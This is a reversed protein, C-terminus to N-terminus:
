PTITDLEMGRMGMDNEISVRDVIAQLRAMGKQYEADDKMFDAASAMCAVRMLQPYRNTVFNTQVSSSLPTPSRYYLLKCLTQQTFAADFHIAEDWIAYWNPMGAILNDCLYDVAAGGGSGSASPTTGLNSIDITFNNTDVIATIPFTGNLTVGNFATAGTTNFVSEQNFGHDTLAVNVSDSGSVTTFPDTGLSGSLEDYNRNQQVFSPDKHRLPINFSTQYMRGIPDLFRSPLAIRSNGIPMSFSFEARMERTRLLSWILAQAEDVITVTDLLTYNVWTAIAGANGKAAILSNYTM